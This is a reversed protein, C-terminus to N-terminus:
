DCEFEEVDFNFPTKDGENRAKLMRLINGIWAKSVECNEMEEDLDELHSWKHLFYLAAMYTLETFIYIDDPPVVERLFRVNAEFKDLVQKKDVDWWQRSTLIFM